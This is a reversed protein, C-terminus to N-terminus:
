EWRGALPALPHAMSQFRALRIIDEDRHSLLPMVGRDLITEAARDTLLVEACPKLRSEGEARYVHLPLGEIELVTGPRLDWGELSFAQGLLCACAFSGNGWLYAEHDQGGEIEEFEFAETRDTEAGYPLRLLFRPLALGTYVAAPLQRLATWAEGDAGSLSDDWGEPDSSIALSPSGVLKEHAGALFPAGALQALRALRGLLEADERAAGFRYNGVLLAWPAGGRTGTTQEVLLKYLGTRSLDEVSTLDAALEERSVDLLLLKLDTGTELRSTLFYVARWAAELAQFDPHHLLARMLQSTAEDVAAVLEEQQPDADPALHPEVIRRLFSNWEAVDPPLRAAVPRGGAGGSLIQDLLSGEEDPTAPTKDSGPTPGAVPIQAWNRVERAAAAFTRPNELRERTERLTRFLEVREFLRDPHFDDLETFSLDVPDGALTLRLRVGLKKMVEDYDDRDIPLARRAALAAGTEGLGRAARGSYDGLLAIRFPTAPDPRGQQQGELGSVLNLDLQGFSFSEPM